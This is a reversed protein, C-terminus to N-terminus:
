KAEGLEEKGKSSTSRMVLSSFANWTIFKIRQPELFSCQISVCPPPTLDIEITVRLSFSAKHSLAIPKNAPKSSTVILILISSEFDHKVDDSKSRM